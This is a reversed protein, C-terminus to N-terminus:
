RMGGMNMNEVQSDSTTHIGMAQIMTNEHHNVSYTVVALTLLIGTILGIVGYLAAERAKITM